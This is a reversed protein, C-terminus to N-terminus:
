LVVATEMELNIGSTSGTVQQEVTGYGVYSVVLTFPVKAMTSFSFSGNVTSAACGSQGKITLSVGALGEKSQKDKVTGSVTISQARAAMNGAFVFLLVYFIQTFIRSM